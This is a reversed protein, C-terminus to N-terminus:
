AQPGKTVLDDPENEGLLRRLRTMAKHCLARAQHATKGLTRGIADFDQQELHRLVIIERSSAPLHGIADLVRQLEERRVLDAIPSIATTMLAQADLESRRARRERRRHDFALNMAMRRAYAAPDDAQAFRPNQVLKCFLDQLLDEAVDARLTLRVLCRTCGAAM